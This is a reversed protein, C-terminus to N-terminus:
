NAYKGVQFLQLIEFCTKLLMLICILWSATKDTCFNLVVLKIYKIM